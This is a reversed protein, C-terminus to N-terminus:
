AVIEIGGRVKGLVKGICRINSDADIIDYKPNLSMLGYPAYKKMYVSGDCVFIGIEGFEVEETKEVYIYDGNDYDPTMSDGAIRLIYSTGHPPKVDLDVMVSTSVDLPEGTGASVPIDYHTFRYLPIIKNENNANVRALESETIMDVVDTGHADLRRYSKIHAREKASLADNKRDPREPEDTLGVLFDVTTGCAEAIVRLTEPRPSHAGTEYGNFTTQSINLKEALHKQSIGLRERAERIKLDMKFVGEININDGNERLTM